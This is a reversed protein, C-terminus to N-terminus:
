KFKKDDNNEDMKDAKNSWEKLQNREKITLDETIRIKKNELKTFIKLVEMKDQEQELKLMIPRFIKEKRKRIRDVKFKKISLELEKVLEHIFEKDKRM